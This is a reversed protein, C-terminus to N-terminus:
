KIRFECLLRSHKFKFFWLQLDFYLVPNQRYPCQFVAKLFKSGWNLELVNLGLELNTVKDKFVLSVWFQM